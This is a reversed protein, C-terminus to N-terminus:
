GEEGFPLFDFGVQAGLERVDGGGDIDDPIFTPSVTVEVHYPVTARTVIQVLGCPELTRREVNDVRAFGPQKDRVTVPGIRVTVDAPPLAESCAGQRSVVVKSFGRSVGDEPAYQSFTASSSMWGDPFVGTQTNRFRAPPEIRWLQMGNRPEGVQEGVVEVGNGTVVWGVGPDPSMTGDPAGLDPSLSPLPATGDLSWIKEIAYNWFELLWIPNTDKGLQQGLFLTPEGGTAQDVWDVPKPSIQHMRESFTNLGRSAYIETTLAWTTVACAAVVAVALGITRSRVFSRAALLAVSIVAAVVLAREVHAADWIFNRNALAGIALSPAEFYPYQDLRFEAKLVLILAVLFGAALAPATAIPRALVAATAALVIPVLYIVNREVILLSFVTSLFAGKVAAYTIFAVFASIGVVVFARGEATARVRSSAFAAVTAIVPLVALGIMMAAVSWLGHDILRHKEFGTAVYWADSRHGAAASFAVVAGTVLVAAGVWDGISWGARWRTFRDTRWLLFFVGAGYVALLVALEGRVFPAVLCLAGALVLRRWTPRAIAATVAWLAATSFPYALPEELLYPAYALPPAAVAGIAAAVAWPRSVVFRALGYAPFIAATMVLAGILKAAEWADTPDLWWAPAVLYTYLSGFGSPEGLRSPMGTDAIGRSIQTFEIEDSFISPSVRQSAQWAYLSALVLYAIGLLWRVAAPSLRESEHAPASSV